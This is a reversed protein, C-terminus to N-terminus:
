IWVDNEATRVGGGEDGTNVVARPETLLMEVELEAYPKHEVGEPLVQMEGKALDVHCDRLDTRLNGQLVM